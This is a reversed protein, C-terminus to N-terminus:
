NRNAIKELLDKKLTIADIKGNSLLPFKDYIEYHSPIKYKAIKDSLYLNMEKENFANKDKLRICAAVTEGYFDDKIGLVKADIVNEHSCLAYAIENPIINEGGRIIIEKIRGSLALYGDETLYGIDGTHLWDNEDVAQDEIKLDNHSYYGLMLNSGRALIEGSEGSKCIDGTQTNIIKLEIDKSPKGVTRSVHETTDGYPSISIPSIESLGYATSFKCSPLKKMLEHIQDESMPAAGFVISRLSSLRNFDLGEKGSIALLITPVAFMITCKNTDIASVITEIHIDKPICIEAGMVLALGMVGNLGVVHFLPSVLCFRDIESSEMGEDFRQSSTFVNYTSLIVGKPMGTSGSSFIIVAPDDFGTLNRTALNAVFYEDEDFSFPESIDFVQQIPTDSTGIATILDEVSVGSSSNGVCVATIDGIQTLFLLEKKKLAPNILLTVAGIYQLAFFHIIWNADNSGYLGVHTGKKIGAKMYKMALIKAAVEVM